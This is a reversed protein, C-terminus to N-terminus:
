VDFLAILRNGDHLTNFNGNQQINILFPRLLAGLYLIIHHFQAAIAKVYFILTFFTENGTQSLTDTMM